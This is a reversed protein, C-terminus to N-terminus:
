SVLACLLPQDIAPFFPVPFPDIDFHNATPRGPTHHMHLVIGGGTLFPNHEVVQDTGIVEHDLEVFFDRM